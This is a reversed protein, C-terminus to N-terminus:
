QNSPACSMRCYGILPEEGCTCPPLGLRAPDCCIMEGWCDSTYSCCVWNNPDEATEVAVSAIGLGICLLIVSLSTKTV